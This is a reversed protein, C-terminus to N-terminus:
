TEGREWTFITEATRPRGAMLPRWAAAARWVSPDEARISLTAPEDDGAEFVFVVESATLYVDHRVFQTDGLDFPPGDALLERAREQAGEALPVVVVLRRV